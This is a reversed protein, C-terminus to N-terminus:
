DCGPLVNRSVFCVSNTNCDLWHGHRHITVIWTIFVTESEQVRHIGTTDDNSARDLRTMEIDIGSELLVRQVRCYPRSIIYLHLNYNPLLVSRSIEPRLVKSADTLQIIDLSVHSRLTSTTLELFKHHYHIKLMLLKSRQSPRPWPVPKTAPLLLAQRLAARLVTKRHRLNHRQHQAAM